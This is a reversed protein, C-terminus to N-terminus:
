ARSREAIFDGIAVVPVAPVANDAYRMTEEQLEPDPDGHVIVLQPMHHHILTMALRTAGDGQPRRAEMFMAHLYPRRDRRRKKLMAGLRVAMDGVAVIEDDGTMRDLMAFIPEGPANGDALLIIKM